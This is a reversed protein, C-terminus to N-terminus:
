QSPLWAARRGSPAVATPSRPGERRRLARGDHAGTATPPSSSRTTASAARAARRRPWAARAPARSSARSRATRARRLRGRLRLAARQRRAGRRAAQRPERRRVGDRRRLPGLARRPPRRAGRGRDRLRRRDRARRHGAAAARAKILANEEFTEGTEPPLEVDDPLPELPADPLLRSSSACSTPTAPRSSSGPWATRSGPRPQGPGRAPGRHRAAALALLEDLHARSLPTREATAQVEVLGGDGTMVVNADVEASSDEPYDLDLLPEGDVVGCSVAAVTGTLPLATLKGEDVLRRCALELAVYGGTISACRTGGDAQLVDCDIYVTREGLKAFDVVGRMSRGILRQIEVTRGDPRGKSVDRQKRDGTSAPLMGYEATLWGRGQGEMWRPVSEEVSATCIVRTEGCSILASGTATRVFNPEITVPRLEDAARGGSRERSMGGGERRLDVHEVPGLPMQLFRTGLAPFADVDGTSLFPYDGEGGAPNGLGRAGLVHEVQRALPAGSTVIEVGRGLTRQLMPRVLPYHTCGLIVTDVGAERLPACYARVTDVVRRDFPFGGEIIATLDPCAVATVDVFPDADRIAREYAGSAVTAPTALLGVRGNRTAAVAQVAGPQVVGLVDVGLTTEMLRTRLAPLAAATASNCAM